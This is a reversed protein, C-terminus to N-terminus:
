VLIREIEKSIKYITLESLHVKQIFDNINVNNSGRKKCICFYILASAVSQPRSRNIISSKNKIKSYSETIDKKELEDLQFKDMYEDILENSNYVRTKMQLTKPAKLNVHKLGKLITKRDLGFIDRLNECTHSKGNMKISQYICGFIIAKRSKGRYIKGNTVQTYIDNATNVVKEPFHFNEVDKFISKDELKRIHCRNPDSNKRTDESGYYRWDKEYSIIKNLELGCDTCLLTGSENLQNLHKCKDNDEEDDEDKYYENIDFNDDYEEDNDIIKLKEETKSSFDDILKFLDDNDM